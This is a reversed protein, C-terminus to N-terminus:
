LPMVQHVHVNLTIPNIPVVLFTYSFSGDIDVAVGGAGSVTYDIASNPFDITTLAFSRITGNSATPHTFAYRAGYTAGYKLASNAWLVYGLELCGFIILLFVPLAFAFEIAASGKGHHLYNKFAKM